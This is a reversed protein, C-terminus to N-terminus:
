TQVSKQKEKYYPTSHPHFLINYCNILNHMGSENCVGIAHLLSKKFITDQHAIRSFGLM